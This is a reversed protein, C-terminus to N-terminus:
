NNYEYLLATFNDQHPKNAENVMVRIQEAAEEVPLALASEMQEPILTGFVGDSVLLLKDKDVLRIGEVNRDLHVIQGGGLYSTLAKAQSDAHIRSVPMMGNAAQVALEEEYVHERNLQILAGGRYLYLRSDGITLFHLHRNRIMATVLTSGGRQKGRLFQNVQFNVNGAMELLMDASSMYEPLQRFLNMVTTVALSSVQGGNNLGGMGDAVVLLTGKIEESVGFSDQQDERAGQEHVSAIRVAAADAMEGPIDKETVEPISIEKETVNKETAEIEQLNDKKAANKKRRGLVFAIVAAVAIGIGAYIVPNSPLKIDKFISVETEEESEKKEKSDKKEESKQEKEQAKKLEEKIDKELDNESTKSM